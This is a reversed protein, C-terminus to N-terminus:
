KYEILAQRRGLLRGMHYKAIGQAEPIRGLILFFARYLPMGRGMLRLLQAPYALLLLLSWPTFPLGVVALVPLVAGWLVARRTQALRFKEPSTGHLAASEAYAHGARTNRTWWQSLKTLAADHWTMEADIRVIRWGMARMRFCMEPEEGAILDDRYGGVAELAARRMLADGGCAIAEGVPTNWEDDTLQNWISDEPFRERRRGCVVALDSETEIEALAAEIWGERLACDGDLFQVYGGKPDIEALRALGANRARAATFPQAMDLTVVEAGAAVAAEVSGDTSGSDVYIIPAAKGQLSALCAKLRDGENRGIAIAAVSM